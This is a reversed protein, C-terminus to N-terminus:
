ENIDKITSMAFALSLLTPNVCTEFWINSTGVTYIHKFNKLRGKLFGDDERNLFNITTGMFHNADAFASRKIEYKSKTIIKKEKLNSSLENLLTECDNFDKKLIKQKVKLKKSNTISISGRITLYAMFFLRDKDTIFKFKKDLIAIFLNPLTFLIDFTLKFLDKFINERNIYSYLGLPLKNPNCFNFIKKLTYIKDNIISYYFMKAKMFAKTEYIKKTILQIYNKCEKDMFGYYYFMGNRIKYNYLDLKSIEKKNIKATAVYGKVHGIYTSKKISKDLNSILYFNGLGGAALILKTGKFSKKKLKNLLFIEVSNNKEFISGVEGYIVELNSRKYLLNRFDYFRLPKYFIKHREVKNLKKVKEFSNFGYKSANNYDILFQKYSYNKLYGLKCIKQWEAEDLSGSLFSWTNSGGGLSYPINATNIKIGETEVCDLYINKENVFLKVKFGLELLESAVVTGLIGGGIILITNKSNDIM